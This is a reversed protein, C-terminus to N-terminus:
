KFALARIPSGSGQKIKLPFAMMYSEGVVAELRTLNEIINVGNGLLAYHAPAGEAYFSDIALVDCGVAKIAKSVLYEAAPGSLGPWSQSYRQSVSRPVWYRDWGFRFNIIDGAEITHHQQEWRQIEDVTVVDTDQYHSFDLTLARGYFQAVATEDMYRHAPDGEKLFHATADMHTGCHENIILQYILAQSGTEFSDWLTHFFRSHTPYIPMDEELTHSLDIVEMNNLLDSLAKTKSM